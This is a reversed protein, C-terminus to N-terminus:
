ERWGRKHGRWACPVPTELMTEGMNGGGQPFEVEKIAIDIGLNEVNRGPQVTEGNGQLYIAHSQVRQQRCGLDALQRRSSYQVAM